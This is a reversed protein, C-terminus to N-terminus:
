APPTGKKVIECIRTVVHDTMGQANTGSDVGSVFDKWQETEIFKEYVDRWELLSDNCVENWGDRAAMWEVM